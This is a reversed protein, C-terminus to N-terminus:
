PVCARWGPERLFNARVEDFVRDGPFPAPYAAVFAAREVAARGTVSRGRPDPLIGALRGAQDATLRSAPVGFHHRAGSEVGFVMPGTEAVELYLELIREKPVLLELLLTYWAELGKRLWSRQQWLFVNKAVQQTLTSGGRLHGGRANSRWAACVNTWDFGHHLFFRADESAVIARPVADPLDRLRVRRADPWYPPTGARVQGVSREVMTLTFPPDIWRVCAVQLVTCAVAAGLLRAAIAASRVIRSRWGGSM